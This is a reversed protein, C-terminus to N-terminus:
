LPVDLGLNVSISNFPAITNIGRVAVLNEGVVFLNTALQVNLTTAGGGPDNAVLVGNIYGEGDDDFSFTGSASTPLAPLVFVKRFWVRGPSQSTQNSRMWISSGSTFAYEWGAADS